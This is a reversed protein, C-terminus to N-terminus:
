LVCNLLSLVELHLESVHVQGKLREIVLCEGSGIKEAGDVLTNKM